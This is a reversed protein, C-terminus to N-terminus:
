PRVKDWFINPSDLLLYYPIEDITVKIYDSLYPQAEAFSVPLQAILDPKLVNISYELDWKVHGPQFDYFDHYGEAVVPSLHAIYSDNKGLLDVYIAEHFYPINGAAVVAISANPGSIEQLVSVIELYRQTGEVFIPDERLLLKAVSNQVRLTNFSFLSALVFASLLVQSTAEQIFTPGRVLFRERIKNLTQVFLVFFLPMAISIFRNAGGQHDWSDGGVYVSYAIQGLLVAALFLNERGPWVVLLLVPLLMLLWGSDWIFASFIQLGQAVRNVVPIGGLKLFYTNPLLEGYYWFRLLTQAALFGILLGLGWRLHQRRYKPQSYASFVLVIVFPVAADIRLLTGVALFVYPWNTFRKERFAQLAKWIALSVLLTLASVEMGQLAWTNLPFYFATLFVALLPVLWSSALERAINRVVLLNLLLFMLGSIQIALSIINTPIAFLHFIAMYFVWLPNSYGEVRQGGPNWVLGNGNALNRAYRMSIMADDFLAFTRQGEVLFSTRAIYATGYLVFAVLLAGLLLNALNPKRAARQFWNSRKGANTKPM